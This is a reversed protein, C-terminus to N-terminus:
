FLLDAVREPRVEFPYDREPGVKDDCGRRALKLLEDAREIRPRM